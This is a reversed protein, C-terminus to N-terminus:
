RLDKTNCCSYGRIEKIIRVAIGVKYTKNAVVIDEYCGPAAKTEQLVNICKHLRVESVHEHQKMNNQIERAKRYWVRVALVANMVEGTLLCTLIDAAADGEMARM